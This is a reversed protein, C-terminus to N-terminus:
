FRGCADGCCRGSVGCGNPCRPPASTGASILLIPVKKGLGVWNEGKRERYCVTRERTMGLLSTRLRYPACGICSPKIREKSFHIKHGGPLPPLLRCGALGACRIGGAWSVQKVKADSSATTRLVCVRASQVAADM